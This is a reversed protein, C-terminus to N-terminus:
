PFSVVELLEDVNCEGIAALGMNCEQLVDKTVQEIDKKEINRIARVENEIYFNRDMSSCKGIYRLHESINDVALLVSTEMINKERQIEEERFGREKVEMLVDMIVRAVETVKSKDCVSMFGITGRKKYLSSFGGFTYSLGRKIRIEQAMRSQMGSNGIMRVM